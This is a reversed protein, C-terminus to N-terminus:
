QEQKGKKTLNRAEKVFGTSWFSQEDLKIGYPPLCRFLNWMVGKEEIFIASNNRM